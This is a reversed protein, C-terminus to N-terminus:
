RRKRRRLTREQFFGLKLSAFSLPNTFATYHDPSFELNGCINLQTPLKAMKLGNEIQGLLVNYNACM